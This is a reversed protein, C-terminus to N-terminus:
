CFVTMGILIQAITLKHSDFFIEGYLNGENEIQGLLNVVSVLLFSSTKFGISLPGKKKKAQSIDSFNTVM